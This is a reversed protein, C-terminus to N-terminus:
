EGLRRVAKEKQLRKTETYYIRLSSRLVRKWNLLERELQTQALDMGDISNDYRHSYKEKLAQVQSKKVYLQEQEM